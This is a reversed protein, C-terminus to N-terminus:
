PGILRIPKMAIRWEWIITITIQKKNNCNFYLEGGNTIDKQRFESVKAIHYDSRRKLESVM